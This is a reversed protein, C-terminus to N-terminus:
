QNGSMNTPSWNRYREIATCSIMNIKERNHAAQL